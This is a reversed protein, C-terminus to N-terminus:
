SVVGEFRQKRAANYSGGPDVVPLEPCPGYGGSPLRMLMLIEPRIGTVGRLAEALPLVAVGLGPPAFLIRGAELLPTNAMIRMVCDLVAQNLNEFRDVHFNYNYIVWDGPLSEVYRRTAGSPWHPVLCVNM